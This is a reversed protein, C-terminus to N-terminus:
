PRPIAVANYTTTPTPPTTFRANPLYLRNGFSAVTTPIDFRPDTLIQTVEGSTGDPNLRVVAVRNLQNQVAFLTRGSLLLGDGATLLASGLDVRTANGTEPDVRFLFGTSSQVVLLAKGDPTRAIGNLNFGPQHVYDGGLPVQVVESPDPLRGFRGFPVKYLFPQMSDTFWAAGPTLVVDNVFTPTKGFAYSAIIDGNVANVVRADGGNGGAVFLRALLDVKMGVSPTGPGQSFVNGKGTVLNVRYIDGDARSGFFAFPLVGIAIGEPLFGDPLAFETPFLTTTASRGHRADASSPAAGAPVAAVIAAIVWVVVVQAITFRHRRHTM